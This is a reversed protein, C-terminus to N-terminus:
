SNFLEHIKELTKNIPLKVKDCGQAYVSCLEKNKMLGEIKTVIDMKDFEALIGNVGDVVQQEVGAFKTSVIPKCLVVAESLTTAFGEYRSTQVYLDAMAMYTYPNTDLGHLIVREELGYKSILRELNDREPGEGLIIWIFRHERKNLINAVEVTLDFGKQTSLRGVSVIVFFDEIDYKKTPSLLAMRQLEERNMLNYLLILKDSSIEPFEKQFNILCEKSVGFIGDFKTYERRMCLFARDIKEIHIWTFRKANEYNAAIKTTFHGYGHYDCVVDYHETPLKYKRECIDYLLTRKWLISWLRNLLKIFVFLVATGRKGGNWLNKFGEKVGQEDYRLVDQWVRPLDIQMVRVKEPVFELFEGTKELLLLDIDYEDKISQMLNLLTKEVGGCGMNKTIFLIKRM